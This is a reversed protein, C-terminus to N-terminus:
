GLYPINISRAVRLRLAQTGFTQAEHLVPGFVESKWDSSATLAKVAASWRRVQHANRMSPVMYRWQNDKSAM